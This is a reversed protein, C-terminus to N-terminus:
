EDNKHMYEKKWLELPNGDKDDHQPLTCVFLQGFFIALTEGALGLLRKIYNTPVGGKLPQEPYRFVVVDYRQPPGSAPDYMYKAVLVRDGNGGGCGAQVVLLLLLLIKFKRKM